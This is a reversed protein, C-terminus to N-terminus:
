AAYEGMRELVGKLAAVLISRTNEGPASETLKILEDRSTGGYILYMFGIACYDLAQVLSCETELRGLLYDTSVHFKEAIGSLLDSSLGMSCLPSNNTRIGEKHTM